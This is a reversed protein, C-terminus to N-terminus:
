VKTGRGCVPCAPDKEFTIIDFDGRLGDFLLMKNLLPTGINLVLKVVELAQLTGMVGAAAGIVGLEAPSPYTGPEPNVPFVCARCAFGPRYTGMQGEFRSVAAWVLPVESRVCWINLLSKTELNDSADVVVDYDAIFDFSHEPIIRNETPIARVEPNIAQIRQAATTAKSCGIDNVTYLVQRNLNSLTVKDDDAIGLQGIGAAALYLLLPSGLGGAGVVFVRAQRLKEQGSPGIEPMVLQRNYRGNM